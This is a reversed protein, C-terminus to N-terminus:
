SCSGATGLYQQAFTVRRLGAINSFSPLTGHTSSAHRYHEADNMPIIRTGQGAFIGNLTQHIQEFEQQLQDLLHDYHKTLRKATEGFALLPRVARQPM